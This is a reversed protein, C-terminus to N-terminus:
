NGLEGYKTGFEQAAYVNPLKSSRYAGKEIDVAVGLYILEPDLLNDRHGKSHYWDTVVSKGFEGYTMPRLPRNRDDYYHYRGNMYRYRYHSENTQFPHVRALNEAVIYFQGGQNEVRQRITKNKRDYSNTHGFFNYRQMANIHSLGARHLVYNPKFTRLRRKKRLLNTAHFISISALNNDPNELDITMNALEMSFFEEPSLSLYNVEKEESRDAVTSSSLGLVFFPLLFILIVRKMTNFKVIVMGFKIAHM